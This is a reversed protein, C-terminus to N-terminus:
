INIILIFVNTTSPQFTGNRKFKVCVLLRLLLSVSCLPHGICTFTYTSFNRLLLILYEDVINKCIISQNKVAISRLRADHSFHAWKQNYIFLIIAHFVLNKCWTSQDLLISRLLLSAPFLLSLTLMMSTKFFSITTSFKRFTVPLYLSLLLYINVKQFAELIAYSPMFRLHSKIGSYQINCFLFM